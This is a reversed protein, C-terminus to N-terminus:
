ATGGLEHPNLNALYEDLAKGRLREVRVDEIDTVTGLKAKVRKIREARAARELRELTEDPLDRVLQPISRM